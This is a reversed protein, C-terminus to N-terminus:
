LSVGRSENMICPQHSETRILAEFSEEHDCVFISGNGSVMDKVTCLTIEKIVLKWIRSLLTEPYQVKRVHSKDM